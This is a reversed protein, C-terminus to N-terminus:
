GLISLDDEEVAPEEKKAPATAAAIVSMPDSYRDLAYQSLRNCITMYDEEFWFCAKKERERFPVGLADTIFKVTLTLGIRNAIDTTTLRISM